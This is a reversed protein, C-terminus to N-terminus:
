PSWPGGQVAVIWEAEAGRPYRLLVAERLSGSGTYAALVVTTAVAAIVPDVEAAALAVGAGLDYGFAQPRTQWAPCGPRIARPDRWTAPAAIAGAGGEGPMTGAFIVRGSYRSVAAGGGGPGPPAAFVFAGAEGIRAGPDIGLAAAAAARAEAEALAAAAGCVVQHGIVGLDSTRLRLVTACERDGDFLESALASAASMCDVILTDTEAATSESGGDDGACGALALGAALGAARGAAAARARAM